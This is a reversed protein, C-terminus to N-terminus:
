AGQRPELRLELGLVDFVAVCKDLRVTPKGQELERVFRESVGALDAVDIQLLGLDKRRARVAEGIGLGSVECLALFCVVPVIAGNIAITVLLRPLLM